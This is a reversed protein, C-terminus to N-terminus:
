QSKQTGLGTSSSDVPQSLTKAPTESPLVSRHRGHAAMYGLTLSTAFFLAALLGTVKVLFSLSGQSGFVTQSAGSGFAAGMEAGKGQQLLVLVILALCILVHVLLIIQYM